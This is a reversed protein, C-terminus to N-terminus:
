KVIEDFLKKANEEGIWEAIKLWVKNKEFGKWEKRDRPKFNSYVDFIQKYVSDIFEEPLKENNTQKLWAEMRSRIGKFDKSTSIDPGTQAKQKKREQEELAKQKIREEEELAKLKEKQRERELIKNDVDIIKQEIESINKGEKKFITILEELAKKAQELKQEKELKESDQIANEIEFKRFISDPKFSENILKTFHELYAKHEKATLFENEEKKVSMKMYKFLLDDPSVVKRSLTFFQVISANSCWNINLEKQIAGEFEGMWREILEDKVKNVRAKVRIKGLGFPKGQGIQHFCEDNKHFTIASMLAGLEIPKLNHFRIKAKFISGKKVPILKSDLNQDFDNKAGWIGERVPYRKWGRIISDNYTSYKTVKGNRGNKQEIYNPYYSAKPSGLTFILEQDVETDESFAHSFQVRGKLPKEGNISGFICEALDYKVKRKHDHYLTNHPSKEYPLKYLYALGLDKIKSGDKRFFVPVGKKSYLRKKVRDWETSESYIFKFHEFEEETLSIGESEESFVFEYFKGTGKTLKTPRPFIWKDPQGTLVITGKVDGNKDVKLRSLQYDNAYKEDTSFSLDELTDEKILSYKYAATKPDFTKGNINQTKTLDIGKDKSFNNRFIQDGLHEDIRTQAIRYPKGCDLIEYGSNNARLWGCCIQNQKKKLDYLENNDWERQAFKVKEDLRLKGFSIIELVNRITGKLSSAPIFFKGDINSFNLFQDNQKDKDNPTHGNRVFVPTKAEIELEIEGSVGDSFPIDHTIQDAWSPFFVKESLPIFNYPARINAM